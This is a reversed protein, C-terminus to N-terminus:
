AKGKKVIDQVQAAIHEPVEAAKSYRWVTVPHVCLAQSLSQQWDKYGYLKIAKKRLDPGTV